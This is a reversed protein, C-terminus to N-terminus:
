GVPILPQANHIFAKDQIIYAGLLLNDRVSMATFLNLNESIFAIGEHVVKHASVDLLSHGQFVIDGSTPDVLGAVTRLTTSKGAGNPGVLAVFEGEDVHLTVDWLVQLFGYGADVNKIELM